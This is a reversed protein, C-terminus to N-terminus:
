RVGSNKKNVNQTELLSFDEKNAKKKKQKIDM